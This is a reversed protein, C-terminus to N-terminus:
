QASTQSTACIYRKEGPGTFAFLRAPGGNKIKMKKSLEASAIPINRVTLDAQPYDKSLQQMGKKDFNYVKEIIWKIGPFSLDGKDSVFLSTGNSLQKAGTTASVYQPRNLKMIAPYPDLIFNGPKVDADTAPVPADAVPYFLETRDNLITVAGVKPSGEFHKNVVVVIEKCETTTGVSFIKEIHHLVRITDTIDIMPSAKVVLKDCHALLMTLNNPVSPVTQTLSYLREGNAGRRAPDIFIADFYLNGNDKLYQISDGEVIKINLGLVNNNHILALANEHKIECSTVEKGTLAISFSDIGLGATADFITKDDAVLSTHFSALAESTCQEGALRNPFWFRPTTCFKPLKKKYRYRCEAQDIATTTLENGHHKLRLKNFDCGEMSAILDNGDKEYFETPEM